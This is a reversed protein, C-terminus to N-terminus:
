INGCKRNVQQKMGRNGFGDLSVKLGFSTSPSVNSSSAFRRSLSLDVKICDNRYTLLLGAASASSTILDYRWNVGTRWNDSVKWGADTVWESYDTLPNGAADKILWLYSSTIDFRKARYALWTENKILGPGGGIVSRQMMRFRGPLSIQGALVLSSWTGSLGSAAIFQGPDSLRVVNGALLDLQWGSNARRMYSVGINARLGREQRDIGTFHNLAFLNSAEFEVIRSDEDPVATNGPDSWVLQIRPEIVELTGDLQRSLPLRWEAALTPTVRGVPAPYTTDQQIAYYDARLEATTAYVSGGATMWQRRWDAGASLRIGDRGIINTGSNRQYGYGQLFFAAEGGAMESGLRQRFDVEALLHPITDGSLTSSLSRFGRLSTEFLQQRRFRSLGINSELRITNSIGHDLLYTDDSTLELHLGARMGNNLLWYGDTFTYGRLQNNARADHSVAGTFDIGARAFRKRFDIGLTASGSSYLRPTLTLDAYDGLTIFYPAAIGTGLKDSSTVEPVLFGSARRVSPAPVRLRPLYAVPLRGLRLQAGEFYLRRAKEDHVIRRARIQWLPTPNTESVVCSSATATYLENYRGDRRRIEVAALQLQKNLVMRANALIGDQMDGSLDAFDAIITIRQGDRLRLPGTAHIRNARSDYRIETAELITTGFFIQVNGSATLVPYYGNYTIQDAILAAKSRGSEAAMGPLAMLVAVVAILALRWM